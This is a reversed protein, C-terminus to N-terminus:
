AHSRRTLAWTRWVEFHSGTWAMAKVVIQGADAEIVNFGPPAGRERISLTGAGVAYTKRDGYPYEVAFPAHIHGTLVLDTQAQALIQATQPGGWVRATMPGGVVEILPHLCVAVRLAGAACAHIDQTCQRRQRASVAGKSWNLRPQAGRATNFGDVHLGNKCVTAPRVPGFWREYRRWPTFVREFAALYPADHNGPVYFKDGPLADLWARATEFEHTEGFRTLDGSVIVLDSPTQAVFAAAAGVAEKHEGGFHIDSLQILRITM